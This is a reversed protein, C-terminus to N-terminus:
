VVEAAPEGAVFTQAANTSDGNIQRVAAVRVADESWQRDIGVWDGTDKLNASLRGYFQPVAPYTDVVFGLSSKLPELWREYHNWHDLAGVFIPQRVQESSATRVPRRNDYYRLAADEFPLGLYDFL